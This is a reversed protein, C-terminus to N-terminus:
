EEVGVWWSIPGLGDADLSGKIVMPAFPKAENTEEIPIPPYDLSHVRFRIEDVGDIRYNEGNFEWIWTVQNKNEPDAEPHSPHPFLPVPVYIDDFFGLSLRLGDANSEKLKASIVEGVFPRFMIMRFKVKYNPNGDGPSIFGDDIQRIDYISVCLGLKAVVKDLFLGQLEKKLAEDLPLSLQKAPLRLSHEIESLYFM